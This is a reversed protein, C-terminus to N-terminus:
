GGPETWAGFPRRPCSYVSCDGYQRWLPAPLGAWIRPDRFRASESRENAVHRPGSMRCQPYRLEWPAVLWPLQRGGRSRPTGSPHRDGQPGSRLSERSSDPHPAPSAEVECRSGRRPAPHDSSRPLDGRSRPNLPSGMQMKQSADQTEGRLPLREWGEVGSPLVPEYDSLILTPPPNPQAVQPSDQFPDPNPKMPSFNLSGPAEPPPPLSPGRFAAHVPRRRGPDPSSRQSPRPPTRVKTVPSGTGSAWLPRPFGEPPELSFRGLFLTFFRPAEATDPPGRPTGAARRERVRFAELAALPAGRAGGPLQEQFDSNLGQTFLFASEPWPPFHGNGGPTENPEQAGSSEAKTVTLGRPTPVM